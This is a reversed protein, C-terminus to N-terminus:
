SGLVIGSSKGVRRVVDLEGRLQEFFAKPPLGRPNFGAQVIKDRIEKAGIADLAGRGQVARPRITRRHRGRVGGGLHAVVDGRGLQRIDAHGDKPARRIADTGIRTGAGPRAQVVM